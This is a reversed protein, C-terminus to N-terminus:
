STVFALLSAIFLLGAAGWWMTRGAPASPFARPRHGVGAGCPRLAPGGSCVPPQSALPPRRQHVYDAMDQYITRIRVPDAEDYDVLHSLPVWQVPRLQPEIPFEIEAKLRSREFGVVRVYYAPRFSDFDALCCRYGRGALQRLGHLLGPLAACDNHRRADVLRQRLDRINGAAIM